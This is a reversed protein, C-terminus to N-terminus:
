LGMVVLSVLVLSLMMSLSSADTRTSWNRSTQALTSPHGTIAKILKNFDPTGLGTVQYCGLLNSGTWVVGDVLLASVPDWGARAEFGNTGCGPNSGSTIDNMAAAGQQYLMPNLFGLASRGAGLLQDNLLSVIAAFTPASASTGSVPVLEGNIQVAFRVGQTAVDPYARGSANYRGKYTSGQADLYREVAADQYSPRPFINSFGGSTFSAATEPGQSQTSGVTTM